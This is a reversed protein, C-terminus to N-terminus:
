DYPVFFAYGERIVGKKITYNFTKRFIYLEKLIRSLTFENMIIFLIQINKIKNM